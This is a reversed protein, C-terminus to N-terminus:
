IYPIIRMKNGHKSDYLYSLGKTVVIETMLYLKQKYNLFDGKGLM